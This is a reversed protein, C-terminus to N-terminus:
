LIIVKEMESSSLLDYEQAKACMENVEKDSLGPRKM